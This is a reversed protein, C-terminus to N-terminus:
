YLLTFSHLHKFRKEGTQHNGSRYAAQNYIYTFLSGKRDGQLPNASGKKICRQQHPIYLFPFNNYINEFNPNHTNEM